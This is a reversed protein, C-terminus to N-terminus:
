VHVSVTNGDKTPSRQKVNFYFRNEKAFSGCLGKYHVVICKWLCTRAHESTKRLGCRRREWLYHFVPFSCHLLLVMYTKVWKKDLTRGKLSLSLSLSFFPTISKSLGRPKSYHKRYHKWVENPYIKFM